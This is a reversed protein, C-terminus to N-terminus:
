VSKGERREESRLERLRGLRADTWRWDADDLAGPAVREWLVPYRIAALGLAAFDDIDRLRDHHGSLSIHDVEEGQRRVVSAEVGGWMELRPGVFSRGDPM